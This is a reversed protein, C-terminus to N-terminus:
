RDPQVLNSVNSSEEVVVGLSPDLRVSLEGLVARDNELEILRAFRLMGNRRWAKPPERAILAGTLRRGSLACSNEILRRTLASDPERDPCVAQRGERDLTLGGDTQRHLFVSTVSPEGLRTAARFDRHVSPDDEVLSADIDITVPDESSPPPILASRALHEQRRQEDQERKERRRYEEDWAEEGGLEALTRDSYVSEILEEIDGPISVSCRNRLVAWTRILTTYSYILGSHGFDPPGGSPCLPALVWLEPEELGAPRPRELHRHLRGARQLILDVPALETVMLDFDLDLSQEVVQTAVLIASKPRCKGDRGFMRLVEEEIRRRDRVLYRAHFLRLETPTNQCAQELTAFLRQASGVTNCIVAACGGAAVRQVLAEALPSDEPSCVKLRLSAKRTAQCPQVQVEDGTVTTIRPYPTVDSLVEAEPLWASLLERRRRTSLTASLLIVTCGMARLWQLCRDLLKDMYLDYAHVEDFIITKGALGFLRVFGHRTKLVSLFVQDVTGVGYPALLGRKSAQFWAHATPGESNEGYIPGTRIRSYEESFAAQGHLLHFEVQRGSCIQRLYSGFREFMQNSTAQTPLATYAGRQRRNDRWCDALYFAAETKGEGMPAELIVLDTERCALRTIAEQLPKPPSCWPFLKEFRASPAEPAAYFWGLEKLAREAKERAQAWYLCLPTHPESPQFYEEASGIWDATSCLGALQMLIANESAGPALSAPATSTLLLTHLEDLLRKRLSPWPECPGVGPKTRDQPRLSPFSGHHGAIATAWRNAVQPCIRLEHSLYEELALFSVCDHRIDEPCTALGLCQLRRAQEPSKGQFGPSAKGIDHSGCLFALLFPLQDCPLGLADAWRQRLGQGFSCTVLRHAVAAVDLMHFLLPHFTDEASTKGWLHRHLGSELESAQEPAM